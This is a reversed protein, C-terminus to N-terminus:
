DDVAEKKDKELIKKRFYEETVNFKVSFSIDGAVETEICYQGGDSHRIESQSLDSTIHISLLKNTSVMNISPNGAKVVKKTFFRKNFFITFQLENGSKAAKKVELLYSNDVEILDEKSIGEIELQLQVRDDMLPSIRIKTKTMM